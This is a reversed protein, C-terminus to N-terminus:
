FITPRFVRPTARRILTAVMEPKTQNVTVRHCKAVANRKDKFSETLGQAKTKSTFLENDLPVFGDECSLGLTLLQQGMMHRGITHDFNSSIGPM